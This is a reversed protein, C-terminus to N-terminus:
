PLDPRYPNAQLEGSSRSIERQEIEPDVTLKAPAIQNAQPYAIHRLAVAYSRSRNDHLPSVDLPETPASQAFV